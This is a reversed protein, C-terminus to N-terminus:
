RAFQRRKKQDAEKVAKSSKRKKSTAQTGDAPSVNDKEPVGKAKKSKKKRSKSNALADFVVHMDETLSAKGPVNYGSTVTQDSPIKTANNITRTLASAKDFLDDIEDRAAPEVVKNHKVTSDSAGTKGKGVINAGGNDDNDSEGDLNGLIDKFLEKKRDVSQQKRLWEKHKQKFQAIRCNSLVIAGFRNFQLVNEHQVLITALEEKTKLDSIAWCKDVVHSGSAHCALAPLNDKFARIVRRKNKLTVEPCSLLAEVFRSGKVDLAWSEQLTPTQSLFSEVVVRHYEQPFRLLHQLIMVGQVHLDPQNDEPFQEYQEWPVMTGVLNVFVDRGPGTAAELARLLGQVIVKYCIKHHAGAEVVAGVVGVRRQKILSAFHPVLEEVILEAQVPKQANRLLAQVVFNAQPDDCLSELNHRFVGAYIQQYIPSPVVRLIQEFLHSGVRHRILRNIFTATGSPLTGTSPQPEEGCGLLRSTLTDQYQLDTRGAQLQIMIQLVPSAVSHFALTQLATPGMSVDIESLISDLTTAFSSTVMLPRKVKFSPLGHKTQYTSSRKSRIATTSKREMSNNEHLKGALLLLIVRVLPSSNSNMILASNYPKIQKCLSLVLEEMSPLDAPPSTYEQNVEAETPDTIQDPQGSGVVSIERVERDIVDAALTLVTQCVQSAMPHIFLEVFRTDFKTLLLRLQDDRAHVLLKQLVRSGEVNTAVLLERGHIESFVNNVFMSRDESSDFSLEELMTEVGCLYRYTSLELAGYQPPEPLSPVDLDECSPEAPPFGGGQRVNRNHSYKEKPQYKERRRRRVSAM